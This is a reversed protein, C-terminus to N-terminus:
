NSRTGGNETIGGQNYGEHRPNRPRQKIPAHEGTYIKHKVISTKELQHGELMFQDEYKKILAYFTEREKQSLEELDNEFMSVPDITSAQNSSRGLKDKPFISVPSFLGVQVNKQLIIAEEQMNIPRLPGSNGERRGIEAM